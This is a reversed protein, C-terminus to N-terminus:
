KESVTIAINNPRQMMPWPLATAAIGFESLTEALPGWPGPPPVIQRGKIAVSDNPGIPFQVIVGRPQLVAATETGPEVTIEWGAARLPAYLVHAFWEAEQTSPSAIITGRVNKFQSLKSTLENQQQPTLSRPAMRAEIKLRALKDAEAQAKLAAAEKELEATKANAAAVQVEMARNREDTKQDRIGDSWFQLATFIVVGAAALATTVGSWIIGRWSVVYWWDAYEPSPGWSM